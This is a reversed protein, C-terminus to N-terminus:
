SPSSSYVAGKARIFSIFLFFPTPRAFDTAPRRVDFPWVPAVAGFPMSWAELPGAVGM